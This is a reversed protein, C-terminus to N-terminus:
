PPSPTTRQSIRDAAAREEPSAPPRAPPEGQGGHRLLEEWRVWLDDADATKRYLEELQAIREGESGGVVDALLADLWEALGDERTSTVTGLLQRVVELDIAAAGAGFVDLWRAWSVAAWEVCAMRSMGVQGLAADWDGQDLATGVRPEDWLCALAEDRADALLRRGSAGPGEVLARAVLWRARRWRAAPDSVFGAPISDLARGIADLGGNGRREWAKDAASLAAQFAVEADPSPHHLCGALALMVIAFRM